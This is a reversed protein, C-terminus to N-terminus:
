NGSPAGPTKPASPVGPAPVGPAPTGPAPVGPAGPAGAAGAFGPLPNLKAGCEECFELDTPNGHQCEPCRNKLEAASPRFCM